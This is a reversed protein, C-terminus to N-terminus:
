VYKRSLMYDVAKSMIKQWENKLHKPTKSNFRSWWYDKLPFIGRVSGFVAALKLSHHILCV